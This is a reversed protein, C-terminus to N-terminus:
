GPPNLNRSLFNLRLRFWGRFDPTDAVTVLSLNGGDTLICYYNHMGWGQMGTSAFKSLNAPCSEFDAPLDGLDFFEAGNVTELDDFCQSGGGRPLRRCTPSGETRGYERGRIRNKSRRGSRGASPM